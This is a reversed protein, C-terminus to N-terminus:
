NSASVASSSAGATKGWLEQIAELSRGKTEPVYRIVFLAALVSMAGYIWYAFGHHFAANLTSNGDLVKFSTSVLWNALWQAAVALGLGKGKISNPFMEALLVWTVPGWSFAFGGIYLVVAILAGLGVVQANFLCGLVIMAAAMVVAGAILLPKRGWHDVTVIAVITFLVNAAGVVVTQLLAADTSAGMNQFMLPAYYLVANIGVFQQFVSMLVGVVLVGAGFSLWKGSRVVLTRQIDALIARADAEDTVRRLQALAADNRGRLVLWRPTDPVFLLLILFVGSPIAESALMWRWGMAKLWAENGLSAIYWNVFYVVLIGLVIALQNFSVLRGRIASPSIEAIYLPSLMSAIGVGVGGLIRYVIFPRLADPGMKGIVGLGFEPVASGLSGLLFLLAAVVLGGKRGLATSIWGAVGAGIICGILASSITWGSLSSRATESLGLPDIFYADISSVAGSIVATDWGFLLGGLTAVFTLGVVLSTNFKSM